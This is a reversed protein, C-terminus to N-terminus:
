SIPAFLTIQDLPLVLEYPPDLPVFDLYDAVFEAAGDWDYLEQYPLQTPRISTCVFKQFLIFRLLHTSTAIPCLVCALSGGQSQFGPSVDDSTWFLTILPGM